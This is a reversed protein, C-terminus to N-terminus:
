VNTFNDRLNIDKRHMALVLVGYRRRFNMERISRGILSSHPGIVCEVAVAKQTSVLKLGLQANPSIEM